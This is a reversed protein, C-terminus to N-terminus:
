TERKERKKGSREGGRKKIEERKEGEEREDSVENVRVGEEQLSKNAAM